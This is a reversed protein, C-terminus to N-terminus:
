VGREVMALLQYLDEVREGVYQQNRQDRDILVPRM